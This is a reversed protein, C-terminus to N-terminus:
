IRAGRAGRDRSRRADRGPDAAADAEVQSLHFETMPITRGGHPGVVDVVADLGALAVAPDSPHVAM